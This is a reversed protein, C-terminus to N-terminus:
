VLPVTNVFRNLPYAHITDHENQCCADRIAEVFDRATYHPTERDLYGNLVLIKPCECSTIAEGVGELLLCPVISTYLSGM